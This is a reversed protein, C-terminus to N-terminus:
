VCVMEGKKYHIGKRKKNNEIIAQRGKETYKHPHRMKIKTEESHCKGLWTIRLKEKQKESWHWGPKRGTIKEKHEKSHHKGVNTLHGTSFGEGGDTSNVVNYKNKKYFNIWDKERDEWINNDCQELIQLIPTLNNQLLSKIWFTKYSVCRLDKLHEYYRRYPNDSKGIYIHYNNNEKPDILAYIFTNM